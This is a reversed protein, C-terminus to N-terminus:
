SHRPGERIGRNRLDHPVHHPGSRCRFGESHGQLQIKFIDVRELCFRIARWGLLPNKENKQAIESILKDGGVDLTRITVPFGNMGELVTKYVNFQLEEDEEQGSQMILFESRFLGIGAANFAHVSDLEEAIEINAKLQILKGDRTESPLTSLNFMESERKLYEQQIKKYRGLTEEDPSGCLRYGEPRRHDSSRRRAGRQHHAETGSRRPYRLFPGPHRYPLDERGCRDRHGEGNEQEDSLTDSPLLDPTVVIM